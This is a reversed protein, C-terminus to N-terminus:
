RVRYFLTTVYQDFDNVRLTLRLQWVGPLPVQMGRAIAHGPAVQVLPVPLPGVDADPLSLQASADALPAIKGAANFTYIHLTQPGRRTPVIDVQVTLPGAPVTGAFPPAYSTRAPVANVLLATVALVVAALCAEVLVARRLGAVAHGTVDPRAVLVDTSVPGTVAARVPGAAVGVAPDPRGAALAAVVPRHSDVVRRHALWGAALMLATVSLKVLLLRGYTTAPLAAVGGVERWTQYAGTVIIVIVATMATRSWRPLVEALEAARAAAARATPRSRRERTPDRVAPPRLFFVLVALGGTWVAVGLLHLTLTATALWADDGVGAHGAAAQTVAVTLALGGLEAVASRGGAEIARLLPVALLLALIRLLVLHGFRSHLTTSLPAWRTVASLGQAAGYPGQLLLLGVAAALTAGWGTWLLRRLGVRELGVPWIVLLFAGAGLLVATAAFATFRAMGALVSVATAGAATSGAAAPAADPAQGVGFSFGGSVPHSDASIVHWSVVYTGRDLGAALGVVVQNGAQGRHTDGADVRNGTASIVRISGADTTVSESFTLTVRAPVTTLAQGGFPDSRELVAHASAPGALVVVTIIM